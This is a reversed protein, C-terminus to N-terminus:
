GGEGDGDELARVLGRSLGFALLVLVGWVGFIYVMGHATDGAETAAPQWLIPMMWLAAGLVPLMRCADMMRRRRYSRRALFLPPRAKAARRGGPGEETM